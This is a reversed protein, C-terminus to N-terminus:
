ILLYPHELEEKNYKIKYKFKGNKNTNNHYSNKM